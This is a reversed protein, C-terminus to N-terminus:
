ADCGGALTAVIGHGVRPFSRISEVRQKAIGPLQPSTRVRREASKLPPSDIGGGHHGPHLRLACSRHLCERDAEVLAAIIFRLAGLLHGGMETSVVGFEVDLRSMREIDNRM